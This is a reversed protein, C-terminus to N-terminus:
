DVRICDLTTFSDGTDENQLDGYSGLGRYPRKHQQQQINMFGGKSTRRNVKEVSEAVRGKAKEQYNSSQVYSEAIVNREQWEHRNAKSPYSTSRTVNRAPEYQRRGKLTNSKSSLNRPSALVRSVLQERRSGVGPSGRAKPTKIEVPIVAADVDNVPKEISPTPFKSSLRQLYPHTSIKAGGALFATNGKQQRHRAIPSMTEHFLTGNRHLNDFLDLQSPSRSSNGNFTGICTPMTLGSVDSFTPSLTIGDEEEENRERLLPSDYRTEVPAPYCPAPRGAIQNVEKNTTKMRTHLSSSAPFRVPSPGSCPVRNFDHPKFNPSSINGHVPKSSSNQNPSYALTDSKTAVWLPSPTDTMRNTYFTRPPPTWQQQLPAAVRRPGHMVSINSQQQLPACTKNPSAQQRPVARNPRKSQGKDSAAKEGGYVAIRDKVSTATNEASPATASSVVDKESLSAGKADNKREPTREDKSDGKKKLLQHHAQAVTRALAPHDKKSELAEKRTKVPSFDPFNVDHNTTNGKTSTSFAAKDRHNEKTSISTDKKEISNEFSLISEYEETGQNGQKELVQVYKLVKKTDLTQDGITGDNTSSEKTELTECGLSSMAQIDRSKLYVGKGIMTPGRNLSSPLEPAATGTEFMLRREKISMTESSKSLNWDFDQDESIVQPVEPPPLIAHKMSVKISVSKDQMTPSIEFRPRAESPLVGKSSKKQSAVSERSEYRSRLENISTLKGGGFCSMDSLMNKPTSVATDKIIDSEEKTFHFKSKGSERPTLCTKIRNMVTDFEEKDNESVLSLGQSHDTRGETAVVIEGERSAILCNKAQDIASDFEEKEIEHVIDTLDLLRQHIRRNIPAPANDDNPKVDLEKWDFGDPDLQKRASEGCTIEEKSASIETEHASCMSEQEEVTEFLPSPLRQRTEKTNRKKKSGVVTVGLLSQEGDSTTSEDNEAETEEEPPDQSFNKQGLEVFKSSSTTIISKDELIISFTSYGFGIGGGKDGESVDPSASSSAGTPFSSESPPENPVCEFPDTRPSEPVPLPVVLQPSSDQVPADNRPTSSSLNNGDDRVTGFALSPQGGVAFCSKGNSPSMGLQSRQKPHAPSSAPSSLIKGRQCNAADAMSALITAVGNKVRGKEIPSRDFLFRGSAGGGVAAAGAVIPSISINNMSVGGGYKAAGVISPVRFSFDDEDVAISMKM